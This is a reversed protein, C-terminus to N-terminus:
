PKIEVENEGVVKGFAREDVREYGRAELFGPWAERDDEYIPEWSPSAIRRADPFQRLLFEEFGKWLTGLTEDTRPDEGRYWHELFCEWLVLTRAEPYFWAQAQGVERQRMGVWGSGVVEGIAGQEDPQSYLGMSIRYDAELIYPKALVYVRCGSKTALPVIEDHENTHHYREASVHAKLRIATQEGFFQGEGIEEDFQWFPEEAREDGSQEDHERILPHHFQYHYSCIIASASAM